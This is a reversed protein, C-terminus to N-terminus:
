AGLNQRLFAFVKRWGDAAQEPRYAVRTTNFFAHGANDYRHFEHTKGLKERLTLFDALAQCPHEHESLANIVPVNAFKALDVITEHKFNVFLNAGRSLCQRSGLLPCGDLLGGVNQWQLSCVCKTPTIM